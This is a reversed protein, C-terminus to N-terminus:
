SQRTGNAERAAKEQFYLARDDAKQRRTAKSVSRPFSGGNPAPTTVDYMKGLIKKSQKLKITYYIRRYGPRTRTTAPFERMRGCVWRRTARVPEVVPKREKVSWRGWGWIALENKTSLEDIFLEILTLVIQQVRIYDMSKAKAINRAGKTLM